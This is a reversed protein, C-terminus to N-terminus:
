VRHVNIRMLELWLSSCVKKQLMENEKNKQQNQQVVDDFRLQLQTSDNKLTDIEQQLDEVKERLTTSAVRDQEANQVLLMSM